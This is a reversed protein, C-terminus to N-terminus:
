RKMSPESPSQPRTMTPFWRMSENERPLQVRVPLVIRVQRLRALHFYRERGLRAAPRADIQLMPM